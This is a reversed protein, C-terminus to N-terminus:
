IPSSEYKMLKRYPVVDCSIYMRHQLTWITRHFFLLHTSTRQWPLLKYM